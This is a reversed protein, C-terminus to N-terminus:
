RCPAHLASSHVGSCWYMYYVRVRMSGHHQMHGVCVSVARFWGALWCGALLADAAAVLSALSM